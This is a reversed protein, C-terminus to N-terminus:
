KFWIRKPMSIEGLHTIPGPINKGWVEPVTIPADFIPLSTVMKWPTVKPALCISM